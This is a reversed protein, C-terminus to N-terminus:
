RAAGPRGGLRRRGATRWAPLGRGCRRQDACHDIAHQHTTGPARPAPSQGAALVAAGMVVAAAAGGVLWVIRRPARADRSQPLAFAAEVQEATVAFPRGAVVGQLVERLRERNVGISEAAVLERRVREVPMRIAVALADLSVGGILHGGAIARQRPTLLTLAPPPPRAPHMSRASAAMARSHAACCPASWRAGNRNTPTPACSTQWAPRRPRRPRPATSCSSTPLPPWSAGMVALPMRWAPARRTM